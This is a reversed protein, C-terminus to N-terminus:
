SYALFNMCFWPVKGCHAPVKAQHYHPQSGSGSTVKGEDGKSHNNTTIIYVYTLGPPLGLWWKVDWLIVNRTEPTNELVM